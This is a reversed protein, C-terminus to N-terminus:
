EKRGMGERRNGLGLHSLLKNLRYSRNLLSHIIISTHSHTGLRPGKPKVTGKRDKRLFFTIRERRVQFLLCVRSYVQVADAQM